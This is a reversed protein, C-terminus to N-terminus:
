TCMSLKLYLKVYLVVSCGPYIQFIEECQGIMESCVPAIEFHAECKRLVPVFDFMTKFEMLVETCVTIIEKEM